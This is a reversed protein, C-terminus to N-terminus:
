SKNAPKEGSPSDDDKPAVTQPLNLIRQIEALLAEPLCPKVLVADCGAERAREIHGGMAWATVAIVPIARTRADARIRACLDCGDGNGSLGIDTTIVQPRLRVAIEVAEDTTAAEAIRYGSFVLWEAYMERTHRDNEVVLALPSPPPRVKPRSPSM